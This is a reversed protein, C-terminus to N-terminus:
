LIEDDMGPNTNDHRVAKVYALVIDEESGDGRYLVVAQHVEEEDGFEDKDGLEKGITVPTAPFLVNKAKEIDEQNIFICKTGPETAKEMCYMIDGLDMERPHSIYTVINIPQNIAEHIPPEVGMQRYQEAECKNCMGHSIENHHEPNDIPTTGMPEKCWACIRRLFYPSVFEDKDGLAEDILRAIDEPTM